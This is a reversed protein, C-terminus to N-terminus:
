EHPSKKLEMDTPIWLLKCNQCSWWWASPKKGQQYLPQPASQSGTRMDASLLQLVLGGLHLWGGPVLSNWRLHDVEDFLTTIIHSINVIELNQKCFVSLLRSEIQFWYMSSYTLLAGPSSLCPRSSTSVSVRSTSSLCSLLTFLRPLAVSYLLYIEASELQKEVKFWERIFGLIFLFPNAWSPSLLVLYELLCM